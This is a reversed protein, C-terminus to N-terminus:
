SIVTNIYIITKYTNGDIKKEFYVLGRKTVYSATQRLITKDGYHSKSYQYFSKKINFWPGSRGCAVILFLAPINHIPGETFNSGFNLVNQELFYM